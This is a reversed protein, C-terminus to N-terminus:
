VFRLFNLREAIRTLQSKPQTDFWGRCQVDKHKHCIFHTDKKRCDRVIEAFRKKDVIRQDTFLCQNCKEACVKM